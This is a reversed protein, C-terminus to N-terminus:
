HAREREDLLEGVESNLAFRILDSPDRELMGIIHYGVRAAGEQMDNERPQLVMCRRLLDALVERGSTTGFTARYHMLLTADRKAKDEPTERTAASRDAPSKRVRVTM